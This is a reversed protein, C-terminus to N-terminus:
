PPSLCFDNPYRTADLTIVRPRGQPQCRKRRSGRGGPSSGKRSVVDDIRSVEERAEGEEVDSLANHKVIFERVKVKKTLPDSRRGHASTGKGVGLLANASKVGARGGQRGTGLISRKSTAATAVNPDQVRLLVGEADAKEKLMRQKAKIQSPLPAANTAHEDDHTAHQTARINGTCARILCICAVRFLLEVSVPFHVEPFLFVGVKKHDGAM